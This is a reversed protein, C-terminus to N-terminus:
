VMRTISFACGKCIVEFARLPEDTTWGLFQRRGLVPYLSETVPPRTNSGMTTVSVGLPFAGEPEPVMEFGFAGLGRLGSVGQDVFTFRQMPDGPGALGTDFVFRPEGPHWPPLPLLVRRQVPPDATITAHGYPLTFSSVEGPPGRLDVEAYQGRVAHQWATLDTHFIVGARAANSSAVLSVAVLLTKLLSIKMADLRDEVRVFPSSLPGSDRGRAPAAAADPM